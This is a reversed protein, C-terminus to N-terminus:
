AHTTAQIQLGSASQPRCWSSGLIQLPLLAQPNRAGLQLIPIGPPRQMLENELIWCRKGSSERERRRWSLCGLGSPCIGEASWIYGVGALRYVYCPNDSLYISVSEDTCFLSRYRFAISPQHSAHALRSFMIRWEMVPRMHLFLQMQDSSQHSSHHPRAAAVFPSNEAHPYGTRCM